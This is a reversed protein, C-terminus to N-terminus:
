VFSIRHGADLSAPARVVQAAQRRHPPVDVFDGFDILERCFITITLDTDFYQPYMDDQTM